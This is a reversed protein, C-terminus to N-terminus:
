TLLQTHNSIPLLDYLWVQSKETVLYNLVLIFFFLCNDFCWWFKLVGRGRGLERERKGEEASISM